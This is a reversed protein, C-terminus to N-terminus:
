SQLLRKLQLIEEVPVADQRVVPPPPAQMTIM